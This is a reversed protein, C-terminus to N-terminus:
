CTRSRIRGNGLKTLVDSILLNKVNKTLLYPDGTRFNLTAIHM